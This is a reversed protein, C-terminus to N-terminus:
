HLRSRTHSTKFQAQNGAVPVHIITSPLTVTCCPHARQDRRRGPSAWPPGQSTTGFALPASTGSSADCSLSVGKRYDGLASVLPALAVGVNSRCTHSGGLRSPASSSRMAASAPSLTYSYVRTGLRNTIVLLERRRPKLSAMDSCNLRKGPLTEGPQLQVTRSAHFAPSCRLQRGPYSM